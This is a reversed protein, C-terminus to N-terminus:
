IKSARAGSRVLIHQLDNIKTYQLLIEIV